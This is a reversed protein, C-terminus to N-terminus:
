EPSKYFQWNTARSLLHKMENDFMIPTGLVLGFIFSGATEILLYDSILLHICNINLSIYFLAAAARSETDNM